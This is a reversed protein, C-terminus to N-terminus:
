STQRDFNETHAKFPPPSFVVTRSEIRKKEDALRLLRRNHLLLDPKAQRKIELILADGQFAATVTAETGLVTQTHEKGDLDAAFDLVRDGLQGGTIEMHIQINQATQKVTWTESYNPRDTRLKWVGSFNPVSQSLLTTSFLTALTLVIPAALRRQYLSKNRPRM